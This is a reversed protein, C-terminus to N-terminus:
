NVRIRKTNMSKDSFTIKMLYFGPKLDVKLRVSNSPELEETQVVQGVISLIEIKQFEKEAEITVVDEVVPNPFVRFSHTDKALSIMGFSTLLLVIILLKVKM